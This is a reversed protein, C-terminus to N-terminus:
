ICTYLMNIISIHIHTYTHLNLLICIYTYTHIYTHICIDHNVVWPDFYTSLHEPRSQVLRYCRVLKLLPRNQSPKDSTSLHNM